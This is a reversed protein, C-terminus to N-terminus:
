STAIAQRDTPEDKALNYLARGRSYAEYARVNRTGGPAPDDTAMRVALANSVMRAIDSQLQFVDDLRRDVRQAWLSFGTRGNTLNTAVRVTDGARQVSGELLYAVDLKRAISQADGGEDRASNSSTGALVM